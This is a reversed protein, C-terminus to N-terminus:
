LVYIMIISHPTFMHNDTHRGILAQSHHTCLTTFHLFWAVALLVLCHRRLFFWTRRTLSLSLSDSLRGAKLVELLSALHEQNLWVWQSVQLCSPLSVCPLGYFLLPGDCGVSGVPRYIICNVHGQVEGELMQDVWSGIGPDEKHVEARHKVGDDWSVTGSDVQLHIM